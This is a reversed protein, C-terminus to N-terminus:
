HRLRDADLSRSSDTHATRVGIPQQVGRDRRQGHHKKRRRLFGVSVAVHLRPHHSECVWSAVSEVIVATGVRFEHDLHHFPDRWNQQLPITTQGFFMVRQSIGYLFTPHAFLGSTRNSV